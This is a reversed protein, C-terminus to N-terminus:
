TNTEKSTAHHKQPEGQIVPTNQENGGGLSGELDPNPQTVRNPFM